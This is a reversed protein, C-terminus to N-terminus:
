LPPLDEFIHSPLTDEYLHLIEIVMDKDIVGYERQLEKLLLEFSAAKGALELIKWRM